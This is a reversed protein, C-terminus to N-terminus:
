PELTQTSSSLIRPLFPSILAQVLPLASTQQQWLRRTMSATVSRYNMGNTLLFLNELVAFGVMAIRARGKHRTSTLSTQLERISKAKESPLVGSIINSDLIGVQKGIARATISNDGSLMWVQMGSSQLDRILSPSEPRIPDAIGLSGLLTFKTDSSPRRAALVVSKGQRKWGDLIQVTEFDVKVGYELMLSENGLIMENNNAFLAKIGM